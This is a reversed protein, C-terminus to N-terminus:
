RSSAFLSMNRQRCAAASSARLESIFDIRGQDSELKLVTHALSNVVYCVREESHPLQRRVPHHRCM